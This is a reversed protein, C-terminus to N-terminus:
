KWHATLRISHPHEWDRDERTQANPLPDFFDYYSVFEVLEGAENYWGAFSYGEREPVPFESALRRSLAGRLQPATRLNERAAQERLDDTVRMALEGGMDGMVLTDELDDWFTEDVEGGMYFIENIAERSRELGRRLSDLFGM